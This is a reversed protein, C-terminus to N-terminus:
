DADGATACLRQVVAPKPRDVIGHEYAIVRLRGRMAELLEGPELLFDPNTPRGFRENGRASAAYMLLGSAAVSAPPQPLHPRHLYNTVVVGAFQRGPLPWPSGDELDAALADFGPAEALDAVGSLDRDLALVRFGLGLALRSHRGSGCAVDLVTGGTPALPLFREVWPSPALSRQGVASGHPDPVQINRNYAR